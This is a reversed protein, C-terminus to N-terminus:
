AITSRAAERLRPGTGLNRRKRLTVRLEPGEQLHNKLLELFFLNPHPRRSLMVAVLIVAVALRKPDDRYKVLYFFDFFQSCTQERKKM